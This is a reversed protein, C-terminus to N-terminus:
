ASPTGDVCSSCALVQGDGSCWFGRGLRDPYVQLSRRDGFGMQQSGGKLMNEAVILNGGHDKLKRYGEGTGARYSGNVRIMFM